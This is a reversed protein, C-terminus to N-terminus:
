EDFVENLEHSGIQYNVSRIYNESADTRELITHKRLLGDSSSWRGCLGKSDVRERTSKYISRNGSSTERALLPFLWHFYLFSLLCCACEHSELANCFFITRNIIRSPFPNVWSILLSLLEMQHAGPKRLRWTQYEKQNHKKKIGKTTRSESGGNDKIYSSHMKWRLRVSETLVVGSAEDKFKGIVKKNAFQSPCVRPNFIFFM